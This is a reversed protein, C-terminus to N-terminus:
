QEKFVVVGNLIGYNSDEKFNFERPKQTCDNHTLYWLNNNKWTAMDLRECKELKIETTGGYLRARQNSTCGFSLAIVCFCLVVLSLLIKM